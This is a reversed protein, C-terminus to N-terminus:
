QNFTDKIQELFQSPAPMAVLRAAIRANGSVDISFQRSTRGDVSIGVAVTSPNNIKESDEKIRTSTNSVDDVLYVSETDEFTESSNNGIAVTTNEQTNTYTTFRISSQNHLLYATNEVVKFSFSEKAIRLVDLDAAFNSVETELSYNVNGIDFSLLYTTETVAGPSDYLHIFGVDDTPSSIIIPEASAVTIVPTASNVYFYDAGSTLEIIVKRYLLNKNEDPALDEGKNEIEIQGKTAGEAIFWKRLSEARRESLDKNYSIGGSGDTHGTITISMSSDRSLIDALVRLPLDIITNDITSPGDTYSNELAIGADDKDFDFYLEIPQPGGTKLEYTGADSDFGIIDGSGVFGNITSFTTPYDLAVATSIDFTAAGGNYKVTDLTAYDAIKLISCDVTSPEQPLNIVIYGDLNQVSEDASISVNSAQYKSADIETSVREVQADQRIENEFKEIRDISGESQDMKVTTSEITIEETNSSTTVFARSSKFEKRHAKNRDKRLFDLKEKSYGGQKTFGISLEGGVEFGTALRMKLEIEASIDAFQFSYFAPVFGLELLSKGGFGTAPDALALAQKVSNNDLQEQARAIGIGMNSIMDTIDVQQLIDAASKLKDIESM